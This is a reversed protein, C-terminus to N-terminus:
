YGKLIELVRCAAEEVNMYTTDIIPNNLSDYISRVALARNIREEDRGDGVMRIRNEEYSCTITIPILKYDIDSLNKLINDFIRKRPGHFGYNFIVYELTSCELYGRLIYSINKEVMKIIEDDFSFPNTMRCWESELWASNHIKSNLTKCLTSKGVGNPGHIFILKKM